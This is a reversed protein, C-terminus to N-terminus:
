VGPGTRGLIPPLIGGLGGRKAGPPLFCRKGFKRFGETQARYGGSLGRAAGLSWGTVVQCWWIANPVVQWGYLASFSALVVAKEFPSIALIQIERGKRARVKVSKAPEPSLREQCPGQGGGFIERHNTLAARVLEGRFLCVSLRVSAM